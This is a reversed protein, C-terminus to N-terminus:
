FGVTAPTDPHRRQLCRLYVWPWRWTGRHTLAEIVYRAPAARRSNAADPEPEPLQRILELAWQPDVLAAATWYQQMVTALMPKRSQISAALPELLARATQRDYPAIALAMEAIAGEYSGTLNEQTPRPPRPPRMALARALYHDIMAPDVREVMVLLAAATGGPSDRADATGEALSQELLAYAEELLGAAHEQNATAQAHAVLGLLYAQRSPPSFERAIREAREPDVTAMRYVAGACYEFRYQRVQDIAQEAVAPNEAALSSAVNALFIDRQITRPKEALALAAPADVRALAAAVTGRRVAADLGDGVEAALLERAERVLAAGIERDGLDFFRISVQSLAVARHYVDGVARAALLAEPLAGRQRNPAEGRADCIDLFLFARRYPDPTEAALEQLQEPTFWMFAPAGGFNMDLGDPTKSLKGDLLYDI